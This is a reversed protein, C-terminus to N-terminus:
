QQEHNCTNYLTNCHPLSIRTRLETSLFKSDYLFLFDHRKRHDSRRCLVLAFVASSVTVLRIYYYSVYLRCLLCITKIFDNSLM